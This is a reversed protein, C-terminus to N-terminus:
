GINPVYARTCLADEPVLPNVGLPEEPATCNGWEIGTDKDDHHPQWHRCTACKPRQPHDMVDKWPIVPKDDSLWDPREPLEPLCEWFFHDKPPFKIPRKLRGELHETMASMYYSVMGKHMTREEINGWQLCNEKAWKWAGAERMLVSGYQWPGVAHGLEHMAITYSVRSQIKPVWITKTEREAYGGLGRYDEDEFKEKTWRKVKIGHKKALSRFHKDLKQSKRM